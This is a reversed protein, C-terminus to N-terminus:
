SIIKIIRIIFSIEFLTLKYNIVICRVIVFIIFVNGM